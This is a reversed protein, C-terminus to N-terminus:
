CGAREIEALRQVIQGDRAILAPVDPAQPEARPKKAAASKRAASLGASVLAGLGFPLLASAASGAVAQGVDGANVRRRSKASQGLAVDSIIRDIAAKEAELKVREDALRVCDAAPLPEDQAGAPPSVTGLLLALLATRSVRRCARISRPM